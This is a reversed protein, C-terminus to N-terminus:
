INWLSPNIIYEDFIKYNSFCAKNSICFSSLIEDLESKQNVGVILHDIFKNQKIFSIAGSIKSMNMSKIYSFYDEMHDKICDFYRPVKDLDMLLLGQLFVSRAHVEINYNNIKSIVPEEIFTQNFVNVPIQIIDPKFLSLSYDFEEKTYLSVGIKKVINDRKLRLLSDLLRKFYRSKMDDPNHLLIGYISRQNLDTISNYVRTVVDGESFNECLSQISIKSVIKFKHDSPLIQGLLKEADGYLPSTDIVEIGKVKANKIISEIQLPDPKGLSNSVGYSMGFQASGIGVNM